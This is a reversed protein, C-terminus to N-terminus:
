NALNSIANDIKIQYFIKKDKSKSLNFASQWFAKAKDINGSQYYCNGLENEVLEKLGNPPPEKSSAESLIEIAEPIKNINQFLKSLRIKTVWLFYNNNNNDLIWQYSKIAEDIKNQEFYTKAILLRAFIPYASSSDNDFIDLNQLLLEQIEKSNVEDIQSARSFVTSSKNRTVSQYEQYYNWGLFLVVGFFIGTFVTIFLLKYHLLFDRWSHIEVEEM